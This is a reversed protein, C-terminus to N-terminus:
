SHEHNAANDYWLRLLVSIDSLVFLQCITWEDALCLDLRDGTAQRQRALM